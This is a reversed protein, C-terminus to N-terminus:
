PLRPEVGSLSLTIPGATGYPESLSSSTTASETATASLALVAAAAAAIRRGVPRSPERPRRRRPRTLM